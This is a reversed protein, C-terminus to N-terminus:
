TQTTEMCRALNGKASKKETDSLQAQRKLTNTTSMAPSTGWRGLPPGWPVGAGANM